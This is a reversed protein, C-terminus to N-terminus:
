HDQPRTFVEADRYIEAVPIVFDFSPFTIIAAPDTVTELEWHGNPLKWYHEIFVPSPEVLLIERMSAVQRYLFAKTGRDKVATSPSLVEVVLTPNTVTDLRDDIYQPAGCIVTIDPYTILTDWRVSVRLDANFAFCDKRELRRGLAINVNSIVFSHLPSGGAMAHMEGYWYEHKAESARELELYQEPTLTTIPATSM